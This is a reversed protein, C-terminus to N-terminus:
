AAIEVLIADLLLRGRGSLRLRTGRQDILGQAVLRRVRDHDVIRGFRKEMAEVDIGEILRLGMVLAENAAEQRTLVAEEVLGHANRQV